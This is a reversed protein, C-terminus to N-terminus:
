CCRNARGARVHAPGRSSTQGARRPKARGVRASCKPCLGFDPPQFNEIRDPAQIASGASAFNKAQPRPTGAGVCVRACTRGPAPAFRRGERKTRPAAAPPLKLPLTLIAPSRSRRVIFILASGAPNKSDRVAIEEGVFAVEVCADTNPGSRSSKFWQANNLDVSM